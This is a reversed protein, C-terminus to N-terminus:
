SPSQLSAYIKLEDANWLLLARLARCTSTKRSEMVALHDVSVCSRYFLSHIERSQCACGWKSPASAVRPLKWFSMIDYQSLESDACIQGRIDHLASPSSVEFTGPPPHPLSALHLSHDVRYPCSINDYPTLLNAHTTKTPKYM